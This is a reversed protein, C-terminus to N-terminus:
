RLAPVNAALGQYTDTVWSLFMGICEHCLFFVCGLLILYFFVQIESNSLASYIKM